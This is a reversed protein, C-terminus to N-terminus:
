GGRRPERGLITTLAVMEDEKDPAAGGLERELFAAVSGWVEGTLVQDVLSLEAPTLTEEVARRHAASVPDTPVPLPPPEGDFTPAAPPAALRARYGDFELLNIAAQVLPRRGSAARARRRPTM